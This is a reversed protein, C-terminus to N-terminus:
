RLAEDQLLGTWLLLRTWSDKHRGKRDRENVARDGLVGRVLQPYGEGLVHHNFFTVIDDGFDEGDIQEVEVNKYMFIYDDPDVYYISGDNVDLRIPAGGDIDRLIDPPIGYCEYGIELPHGLPCNGDEEREEWARRSRIKGPQRFRFYDGGLCSFLRFVEVVGEPLDPIDELEDPEELVIGFGHEAEARRVLDLKAEIEALGSRLREDM